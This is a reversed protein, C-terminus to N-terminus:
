ERGKERISDTQEEKEREGKMDTYRDILIVPNRDRDREGVM